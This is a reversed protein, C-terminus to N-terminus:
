SQGVSPQCWLQVLWHQFGWSSIHQGALLRRLSEQAEGFKKRSFAARCRCHLILCPAPLSFAGFVNKSKVQLRSISIYLAPLLKYSLIGKLAVHNGSCRGCLDMKYIQYIKRYIVDIFHQLPCRCQCYNYSIPLMSCSLHCFACGQLLWTTPTRRPLDHCGPNSRMAGGGSSVKHGLVALSPCSCDIRTGPLSAGSDQDPWLIHPMTLRTLFSTCHYFWYIYIYHYDFWILNLDWGDHFKERETVRSDLQENRTNLGSMDLIHKPCMDPLSRKHSEKEVQGQDKCKIYWIALHITSIYSIM